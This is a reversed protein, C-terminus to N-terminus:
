DVNSLLQLLHNNHVNLDHIHSDSENHDRVNNEKAILIKKKKHKEFM